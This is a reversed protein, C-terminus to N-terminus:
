LVDAELLDRSASAPQLQQWGRRCHDDGGEAQGGPHGAAGAHLPSLGPLAGPALPQEIRAVTQRGEQRSQVETSLSPFRGWKAGDLDYTAADVASRGAKVAPHNQVAERLTLELSLAPQAHAPSGVCLLALLGWTWFRGRRVTRPQTGALSNPYEM